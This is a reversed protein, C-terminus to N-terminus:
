RPGTLSQECPNKWRLVNVEVFERYQTSYNLCWSYVTTYLIKVPAHYDMFCQNLKRIM